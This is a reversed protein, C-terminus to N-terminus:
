EQGRAGKKPRVQETTLEVPKGEYLPKVHHREYEPPFLVGAHVLTDWKKEKNEARAGGAEAAPKAPRRPAAQARDTGRRAEGTFVKDQAPDPDLDLAHLQLTQPEQM